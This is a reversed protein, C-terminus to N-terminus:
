FTFFLRQEISWFFLLSYNISSLTITLKKHLWDILIRFSTNQNSNKQAQVQNVVPVMTPVPELVALLKWILIKGLVIM